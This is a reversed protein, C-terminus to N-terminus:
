TARALVQVRLKPEAQAILSFDADFTIIEADHHRAVTAILLDLAGVTFGRDRCRQGLLAAQLWLDHPSPLLRFKTFERELKRREEFRSGRRLEFIVPDCLCGGPRAIESQAQLRIVPPVHRRGLEIWLSTDILREM